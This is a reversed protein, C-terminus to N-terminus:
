LEEVVLPPGQQTGEPRPGLVVKISEGRALADAECPDIFGAETARDLLDPILEALDVALMKQQCADFYLKETSFGSAMVSTRLDALHRQWQAAETIGNLYKRARYKVLRHLRTALEVHQQGVDVEPDLTDWTESDRQGEPTLTVLGRNSDDGFNDIRAVFDGPNTRHEEM